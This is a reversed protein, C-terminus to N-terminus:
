FLPKNKSFNETEDSINWEEVKIGLKEEIWDAVIKRHCFTNDKEWCLLVNDKLTNYISQADLKDLVEKRYSEKYQEWTIQKNKIAFFLNRPPALAPFTAGNWDYPPYLCIAVGM